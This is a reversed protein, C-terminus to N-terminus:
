LFVTQRPLVRLMQQSGLHIELATKLEIGYLLQEAKEWSISISPKDGAPDTKGWWYFTGRWSQNVM